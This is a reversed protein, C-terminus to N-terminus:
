KLTSVINSGQQFSVEVNFRRQIDVQYKRNKYVHHIM